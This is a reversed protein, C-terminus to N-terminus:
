IIKDQMSLQDDYVRFGCIDPMHFKSALPVRSDHITGNWQTESVLRLPFPCRSQLKQGDVAFFHLKKLKRHSRHRGNQFVSLIFVKGGNQHPTHSSM